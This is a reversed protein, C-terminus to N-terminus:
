PAEAKAIADRLDVILWEDFGSVSDWEPRQWALADGKKTHEDINQILAECAALLVARANAKGMRDSM